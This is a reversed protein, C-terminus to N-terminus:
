QWTAIEIPSSIDFHGALSEVPQQDVLIQVRAIEPFNAGITKVICGLTAWEATTGGPHETLLSPAFDLYVTAADKDYYVRHLSTAAPLTRVVDGERPGEVLARIAAACWQDLGTRSVLDRQEPVLRTGDRAAFFLTTTHVGGSADAALDAPPLEQTGRRPGFLLLAVGFLVLGAGAWLAVRVRDRPQRNENETM